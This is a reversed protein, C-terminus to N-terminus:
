ARGQRPRPSACRYPATASPILSPSPYYNSRESTAASDFRTIWAPRRGFARARMSGPAGGGCGRGWSVIGVVLGTHPDKGIILPGGSDGACSDRWDNAGPSACLMSLGSFSRDEGALRSACTAPDILTMVRHTLRCPAVGGLSGTGWGVVVASESTPTLDGIARVQDAPLPGELTLRALDYRGSKAEYRPHIRTEVIGTRIGEIPAHRCLNDAGVLADMSSTDRGIVCHAATLVQDPGVLVGGCFQANYIDDAPASASILAVVGRVSGAHGPEMADPASSAGAVLLIAAVVGALGLHRQLASLSLQIRSRLTGLCCM